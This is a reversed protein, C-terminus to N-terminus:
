ALPAAVAPVRVKMAPDGQEEGVIRGGQLHVIRDCFKQLEKLDHSVLIMTTGDDKLMRFRQGCKRQFDADGVAFVEDLLFADSVVHTAASFALRMQMGTSWCKLPLDLHSRVDAFDLIRDMTNRIDVPRLGQLLGHLYINEDARREPHFGVGLGFFTSLMGRVQVCGTDPPMLGAIIRLLTTKGSGNPGYIGVWEGRQVTLSIGSLAEITWLRKQSRGRLIRDQLLPYPIVHRRFSKSVASCAIIPQDFM